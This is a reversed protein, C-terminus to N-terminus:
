DEREDILSIRFSKASQILEIKLVIWYTKRIKSLRFNEFFISRMAAGSRSVDPSFQPRRGAKALAEPM